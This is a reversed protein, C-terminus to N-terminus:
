FLLGSFFHLCLLNQSVHRVDKFFIFIPYRMKVSSPYLDDEETMMEAPNM